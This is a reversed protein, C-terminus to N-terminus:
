AKAKTKAEAEQGHPRAERAPRAAGLGEQAARSRAPSPAQAARAGEQRRAAKGNGRRRSAAGQRGRPQGRARGDPGAGQGAGRARGAVAIEQGEAKREILELVRERYEDRYKTPDFETTLSEILQRAMDVERETAKVDEDPLEDIQDPSVLEDAFLMTEM